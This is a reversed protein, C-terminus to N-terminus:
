GWSDLHRGREAHGVQEVNQEDVNRHNRGHVVDRLISGRRRDGLLTGGDDQRRSTLKRAGHGVKPWGRRPSTYRRRSPHRNAKASSSAMQITIDIYASEFSAIPESKTLM